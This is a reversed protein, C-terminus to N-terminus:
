PNAQGPYRVVTFNRLTVTESTAAMMRGLFDVVLPASLSEASNKVSASFALTGGWSQASLQAGGAYVGADGRGSVLTETSAAARSELVTGGWHVEVLFAAATGGEHSYDFRIEVRDGARLLNAPITCSGVRTLGTASTSAGTGGCLVQPLTHTQGAEVTKRSQEASQYWLDGDARALPDSATGSDQWAARAASSAASFSVGTFRGSADVRAREVGGADMWSQLAEAGQGQGARLVLQTTGTGPQADYVYLTASGISNGLSFKRNTNDWALRAANQALNGTSDVFPIAGATFGTYLCTNWVADFGNSMLCRNAQGIPLRTWQAPSTGQAVILDGRVVAAAATDAHSASLLAHGVPTRADSLRADQDTVFKNTASPAGATGAMAAKQDATPDAANSHTPYNLALKSERIGALDAVNADSVVGLALSPNPFTGSLAGGAEGTPNAADALRYNAALVDGPQPASGAAFTIVNGSVTYDVGAKQMLGNRYLALSAAPSPANAVTFVTNSGNILGVPTEGDVFGPGASGGSVGCPGASGDVRVCDTLNGVVAEIEGAANAFLARSPAYGAGKVPRIALDALLGVVDSEQVTTTVEAPPQVPGPAVAGAAVRVDKLRLAATSPPVAWTEEYQIKGDSNYRVLYSAATAANTTPVLQVRLVGNVVPVTLSHTAIYSSDTAEFSKWEIHLSGNFTTGDAKYLVDQITTLPPGAWVEAFSWILLALVRARWSM